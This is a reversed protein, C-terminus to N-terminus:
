SMAALLQCMLAIGFGKFEAVAVLLVFFVPEILVCQIIKFSNRTEMARRSNSCLRKCVQKARRERVM